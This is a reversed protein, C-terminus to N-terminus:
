TGPRSKRPFGGFAAGDALRKRAIEVVSRDGEEYALRLTIGSVKWGHADRVLNMQYRGAVTWTRPTDGDSLHHYARVNATCRAHQEDAEALVVPGLLHQTVDFGPLLGQWSEVLTGSPMTAADGGWLSSYDVTVERALLARATDWDRDDVAHLMATITTTVDASSTTM